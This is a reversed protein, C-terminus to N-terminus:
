LTQERLLLDKVLDLQAEAKVLEEDLLRQRSSSETLEYELQDIRQQQAALKQEARDLSAILENAGRKAQEERSLDLARKEDELQACAGRLREAEAALEGLRDRQADRETTLAEKDRVLSTVEGGLAALRAELAHSRTSLEDRSRAIADREAELDRKVQVWRAQAAELEDARRRQREAEDTQERQAQELADRALGAAQLQQALTERERGLTQLRQQLRDQEAQLREFQQVQRGLQAELGEARAQEKQQRVLHQKGEDSRLKLESRARELQQAMASLERRLADREAELDAREAKLASARAVAERQQETALTEAAALEARLQDILGAQQLLEIRHDDRRYLTIVEPYLADPDEAVRSFGLGELRESGLQYAPEDCYLDPLASAHVLVWAFRQLLAADTRQLLEVGLGPADLVLLHNREQDSVSLEIAQALSRAGVEIARQERLNPSQELLRRPERLSCYRLNSLVRLEAEAVPEPAIALGWVEEGDAGRIRASLETAMEPHAEALILRRNGVRRLMPLEAGTGAGVVLTTGAARDTEAAVLSLLERM